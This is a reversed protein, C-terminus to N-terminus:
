RSIKATCHASARVRIAAPRCGSATRPTLMPSIHAAATAWSSGSASATSSTVVWARWPIGHYIDLVQQTKGEEFAKFDPIDALEITGHDVMSMITAPDDAALFQLLEGSEEVRYNTRMSEHRMSVAGFAAWVEEITCEQNLDWQFPLNAEWLRETSFKEVDRFVSIQGIAMPYTTEVGM